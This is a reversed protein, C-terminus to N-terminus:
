PGGTTGQGLSLFNEQCIDRINLIAVVSILSHSPRDSLGSSCFSVGAAWM